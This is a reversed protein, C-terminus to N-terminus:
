RQCARGGEATAAGEAAAEKSSPLHLNRTCTSSISPHTPPTSLPSGTRWTRHAWCISQLRSSSQRCGHGRRVLQLAKQTSRLLYSYLFHLPSPLRLGEPSGQSAM